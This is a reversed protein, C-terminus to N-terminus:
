KVARTTKCNECTYLYFLLNSNEDLQAGHPIHQHWSQCSNCYLNLEKIDKRTFLHIIAIFISFMVALL